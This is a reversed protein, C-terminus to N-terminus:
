KIDKGLGIFRIMVKDISTTSSKHANQNANQTRISESVGNYLVGCQSNINEIITTM